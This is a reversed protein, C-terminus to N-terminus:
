NQIQQIMEEMMSTAKAVAKALLVDITENDMVDIQPVSFEIIATKGAWVFSAHFLYPNKADAPSEKKYVTWAMLIGIKKPIKYRSLDVYFRVTGTRLPRNM